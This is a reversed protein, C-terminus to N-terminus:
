RYLRRWAAEIAEITVIAGACRERGSRDVVHVHPFGSHQDDPVPRFVMEFQLDSQDIAKLVKCHGCWEGLPTDVYVVPRGSRDPAAAPPASPALDPAYMRGGRFVFAGGNGEFRMGDRPQQTTWRWITGDHWWWRGDNRFSVAFGESDAGFGEPNPLLSAVQALPTFRAARPNAPVGNGSTFGRLIGILNGDVFVGGGSQGKVIPPEGHGISATAFDSIQGTSVQQETELGPFGIVVADALHESWETSFEVGPDDRNTTVLAVDHNGGATRWQAAATEGDISIASGRQLVHACTLYRGGGISVCSGSSNGCSIRHVFTALDASEALTPVPDSLPSPALEDPIPEIIERRPESGEEGSEAIVPDVDCDDCGPDTGAGDDPSDQQAADPVDSKQVEAAAAREVANQQEIAGMAWAAILLGVTAPGLEKRM